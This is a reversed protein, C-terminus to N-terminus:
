GGVNTRYRLQRPFLLEITIILLLSIATSAFTKILFDGFSGFSLWELFVLWTHYSFTLVTIYIVYPAWLLSQASPERYNFETSDRPTLVGILFPRIFALVLCASAHLGPSQMFYDVILGTFFAIWLLLRPRISFPLWLLFIFFLSPSIFRHLHPISDLVYIEIFLFLLFRVINRIVERM